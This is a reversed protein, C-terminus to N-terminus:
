ARLLAPRDLRFTELSFPPKLGLALAAAADGIAPGMKFAHGSGGGALIIPAGAGPVADLVYHYDPTTTYLCSESRFPTAELGPFFSAVFRQNAEIISPDGEHDHSRLKKEDLVTGVHHAAVKVGQTKVIPIGYYGLDGLGNNLDSIFVPMRKYGYVAKSGKPKFYSVTERTVTTPRHLNFWKRATATLGAGPAVICSRGVIREKNGLRVVVRDAKRQVKVVESGERVDVKLKRALEYARAM